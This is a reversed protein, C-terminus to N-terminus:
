RAGKSLPEVSAGLMRLLRNKRCRKRKYMRTHRVYSVNVRLCAGLSSISKSIAALRQGLLAM